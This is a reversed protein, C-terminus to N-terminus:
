SNQGLFELTRRWADKAASEHYAFRNTDNFFAHGCDPYVVVEYNVGAEQMLRKLEPLDKMLNEDKEGHFALIPCNITKLKELKLPAHGYFPVAAKLRQERTAFEYSYTGGFCFGSIFVTQKAEPKGYLYDFCAQIKDVTIEAFGPEHIPTTVARLKPQAENRTEPNFYDEQLQKAKDEIHLMDLLNPALAIYGEAAYRDAIDKTHDNLAWVEHIVIISGKIAGTPEAVYAEFEQGDFSLNVLNGM